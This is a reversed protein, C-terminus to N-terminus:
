ARARRGEAAAAARDGGVDARRARAVARGADAVAGQVATDGPAVGAPTEAVVLSVAGVSARQGGSAPRSAHYPRATRCSNRWPRRRSRRLGRKEMVTMRVRATPTPATVVAKLMTRPM